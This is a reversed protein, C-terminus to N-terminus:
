HQQGVEPINTWTDPSVAFIEKAGETAEEYTAYWTDAEFFGEPRMILHYGNKDDGQIRLYLQCRAPPKCGPRPPSLSWANPYGYVDDTTLTKVYKM